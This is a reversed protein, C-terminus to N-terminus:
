PGEEEDDEDEDEGGEEEAEKEIRAKILEVIAKQTRRNVVNMKKSIDRKLDWNAKRPAVNLTDTGGHEREHEKLERQIASEPPPPPKAKSTPGSGDIDEAKRKKTAASVQAPRVFPVSM